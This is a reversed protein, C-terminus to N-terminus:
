RSSPLPCPATREDTLHANCILITDERRSLLFGFDLADPVLHVWGFYLDGWSAARLGTKSLGPETVPQTDTKPGAGPSAAALASQPISAIANWDPFDRYYAIIHEMVTSM